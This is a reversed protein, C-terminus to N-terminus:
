GDDDAGQDQWRPFNNKLRKIEDNWTNAEIVTPQLLIVLESKIMSRDTQRFLFGLFPIRSLWPVGAQINSKKNQLLGGIVVVQGSAARIISDTERISSFAVPLNYTDSGLSIIKTREVVETVSPHVHLIVENNDGIQPTVDLAIGSFFSTLGFEPISTTTNDTTTINTTVETVFFEDTGVKIVAKQNNVTSIRPSSLVQVDGQRQLLQIVGTFDATNINLSFIGAINDPNIINAATLQASVDKDSGAFTGGVGLGFSDWQIGSQFGESLTVELIKAEIIVQKQLSLEAKDLFEEVAALESPFARVMILGAMADVIVRREKGTGVIMQVTQQLNSWFDTVAQTEIKSGTSNTAASNSGTDSSSDDGSSSTLGGGSSVTMGSSGQRYVNLYNLHFVKNQLAKPLIRYGYDTHEYQYGYIDRVAKLTEQLTVNKLNLSIRGKVGPHVLMNIGMGDVLGMFFAKPTNNRAVVDFRVPVLKGPKLEPTLADYAADPVVLKPPAVHVDALADEAVPYEQQSSCSVLMLLAAIGATQLPKILM